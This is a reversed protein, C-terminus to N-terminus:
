EVYDSHERLHDVVIYFVFCASGVFHRSRAEMVTRQRPVVVEDYPVSGRHQIYSSRGHTVLRVSVVRV